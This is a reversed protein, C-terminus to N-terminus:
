WEEGKLSCHWTCAGMEVDCDRMAPRHSVNLLVVNAYIFGLDYFTIAYYSSPSQKCMAKKPFIKHTLFSLSGEIEGSWMSFVSSKQLEGLVCALDGFLRFVEVSMPNPNFGLCKFIGMEPICQVRCNVMLM